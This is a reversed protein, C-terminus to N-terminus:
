EKDYDNKIKQFIDLGQYENETLIYFRYSKNETNFYLAIKTWESDKKPYKDSVWIVLPNDYGFKVSEYVGFGGRENIEEASQSTGYKASYLDYMHLHEVWPVCAYNFKVGLAIYYFDIQIRAKKVM